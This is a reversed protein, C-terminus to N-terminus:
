YSVSFEGSESISYVVAFRKFTFANLSVDTAGSPSLKLNVETILQKGVTDIGEETDYFKTFNYGSVGTKTATTLGTTSPPRTGGDATNVNAQGNHLSVAIANYCDQLSAISEAESKIFRPPFEQSGLRLRWETSWYSYLSYPDGRGLNSFATHFVQLLQKPKVGGVLTQKFIETPANLESISVSNSVAHIQTDSWSMIGQNIDSAQRVQTMTNDSVVILDTDYEATITMDGGTIANTAVATSSFLVNRVSSAWIIEISLNDNLFGLPLLKISSLLGILPISFTQKAIANGAVTQSIGLRLGTPDPPPVGSCVSNAMTASQDTNSNLLLAMVNQFNRIEQVYGTSNSVINLQSILSYAGINSLRIATTEATVGTGTLNKFEVSLNLWSNSCNMFGNATHPIEIICREGANYSSAESPLIARYCRGESGENDVEFNFEQSVLDSM